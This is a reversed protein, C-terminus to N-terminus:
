NSRSYDVEARAIEWPRKVREGSKSIFEMLWSKGLRRVRRACGLLERTEPEFGLRTIAELCLCDDSGFDQLVKGPCRNKLDEYSALEGNSSCCQQIDGHFQECENSIAGFQIALQTTLGGAYNDQALLSKAMDLEPSTTKPLNLVRRLNYSHLLSGIPYSNFEADGARYAEKCFSDVEDVEPADSIELQLLENWQPSAAMLIQIDASLEKSFPIGAIGNLM